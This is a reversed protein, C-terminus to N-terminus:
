LVTLWSRSRAAAHHPRWQPLPRRHKHGTFRVYRLVARTFLTLVDDSAPSSVILRAAGLLAVLAVLLLGFKGEAASLLGTVDIIGGGTPM